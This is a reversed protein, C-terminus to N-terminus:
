PQCRSPAFKFICVTSEPIKVAERSDKVIEFLIYYIKKLIGVVETIKIEDV